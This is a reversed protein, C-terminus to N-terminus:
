KVRVLWVEAVQVGRGNGGLATPRTWTLRLEGDSTAELPIEFELPRAQNTKPQMPHIEYKKDAVLRISGTTENAYMVRVKYKAARDLDRYLMEMPQERLTQAFTASSVRRAGSTLFGAHPTTLFDPDDAYSATRVLHPQANVNGLDDYFGGPGPNTWNLIEDLQALRQTEDSLARIEEFRARLWPANNLPADVLDLNAGRGVAIAQYRPVSLQMRVSQFLAEALEFIRARWAAAVPVVPPALAAEAAEMAARSGIARARQLPDLARQEQATEAILRARNTADYYARYLAQQFRWNALLAPTATREMAQFQALTTFVTDNGILPGRWNRELALLGQAFSESHNAGIFYRSYDRLIDHIDASPDWSLGSWVCKNVDDNCGESYTIVGYEAKPQLRHFIAAQDLPRPNIVERHETVAFAHDWDPVPFQCTISHTIDPYFRMKYRAPVRARLEDLSERQQPGFVIGELWPAGQQLIRHFDEMWEASFGQPSMWMMAKPHLQKLQATQRELMPFLAKPPTRGPDGGPVFLADIQPLERLVGAWEKLAFEVTKPDGYNEDLAPYWIWFQIGYEKAIRSQEALMRIQPLPFHPSDAADDSRPPIGEIANAGFIILDRIYQEWQAVDWADYSNTKPRYGLQHGRLPYKPATALNVGSALALRGPAYDLMRLLRGAGFLVGRVDNGAVVVRGPKESVIQYGEPARSGGAPLIASLNPYSRLLSERQGLFVIPKGSDGANESSRWRVQSRKEAEEILLLLAKKEPGTLGPPVVVTASTLDIRETPVTEAAHVRTRMAAFLAVLVVSVLVCARKM